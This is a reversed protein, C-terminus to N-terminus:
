RGRRRSRSGAARRARAPVLLGLALLLPALSGAPMSACGGQAADDEVIVEDPLPTDDSKGGRATRWLFKMRTIQGATFQGRCGQSYGMINDIPDTGEDDPCSDYGPACSHHGEAQTPTDRILDGHALWGCGFQFTHLLGMWHGFEHVPVLPDSFGQKTPFYRLVVHDTRRLAPNFLFEGWGTVLTDTRPGVLYINLNRRGGVNVDDFLAREEDSNQALRYTADGATTYDIKVLDLTFPIHQAALETNIRDVTIERAHAVPMDGEGQPARRVVHLYVPIHYTVGGDDAKDDENAQAQELADLAEQSLETEGCAPDDAHALRTAALITALALVHTRM